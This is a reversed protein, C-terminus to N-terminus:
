HKTGDGPISLLFQVEKHIKQWLKQTDTRGSEGLEAIRQNVETLAGDGYRAIM